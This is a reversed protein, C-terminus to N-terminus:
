AAYIRYNVNPFINDRREVESLFAEDVFGSVLSDYLRNFRTIHDNTRKTAYPVTTGTRMIFAWDSSQALMLERAAQNLARLQQADPTTFQQALEVMREGMKHLHRYIWGNTSNCWFEGYGGAGWSSACPTAVQNTPHLRLYGSPTIPEIMAQDSNMKRFLLELFTPGEYWWHGFLEADYPSVVIPKRDMNARLREVQRGRNHLFHGAHENARQWAVHPEYPRKDHLKNHTIAWYKVGTYTRIRDPHIYPGIYDMDLDFGIDRYFDRYNPDGPYGEKSSWVQRSSEIDRAFAAVGTQCYIPAHVGYVPRRDAFLLGHTDVFFYRIGEERLLEDVGPVYGCEGLWIGRTRRGFTREYLDAATHVQARIAAWNRNLLPIFPHTATCTIIELKGQDQLQRFAKTIDGDHRLWFSKIEEFRDRYMQALGHFRVDGYTRDVELEALEILQNIKKLYREKLLDDTLMSILPPSLSITLRFDVNDRTLREFAILLPIYTETIAEFLWEEEMYSPAEPHRVFPLHAHLVLALYGHAM